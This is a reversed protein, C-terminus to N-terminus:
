RNIIQITTDVMIEWKKITDEFFHHILPFEKSHNGHNHCNFSVLQRHPRHAAVSSQEISAVESLLDPRRNRIIMVLQKATQDWWYPVEVTTIGLLDCM